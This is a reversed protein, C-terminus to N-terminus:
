KGDLQLFVKWMQWYYEAFPELDIARSSFQGGVSFSIRVRIWVDVRVPPYNEEPAITQIGELCLLTECIYWVEGAKERKTYKNKAM